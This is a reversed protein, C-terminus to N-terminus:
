HKKTTLLRNEEQVATLQTLLAHTKTESSRRLSMLDASNSAAEEELGKVHAKISDLQKRLEDREKEISSCSSPDSKTDGKTRLLLARSTKTEAALASEATKTATEEKKIDGRLSQLVTSQNRAYTELTEVQANAEKWRDQADAVTSSELKVEREASTAKEEATDVRSGLSTAQDDLAAISSCLKRAAERPAMALAETECRAASMSVRETTAAFAAIILLLSRCQIM